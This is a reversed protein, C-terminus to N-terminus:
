LQHLYHILEVGSSLKTGIKAICVSLPTFEFALQQKIKESSYCNRSLVVRATARDIFPKRGTIKQILEMIWAVSMVLPRYANVYPRPCHMSDAIMFLLDKNSLNEGVLIFREAVINTMETLQIMARCVDAVCVYGSGGLTYVPLGREVRDFLEMTGSGRKGYGMIVGPNVVVAPLGLAIADWVIKESLYKSKSYTSGKDNAGTFCHEDVPINKGVSSLAGISSVFCFRRVGEKLAADVVHRTGMVNVDILDDENDSFSVKAACHYVAAVGRMAKEVSSANLVDGEVWEIESVYRSLKDDYFDFILETQEFNSGRRKLARVKSGSHLLHWLLHGGLMGTAGTLLIIESSPNM